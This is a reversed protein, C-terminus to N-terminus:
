GSSRNLKSFKLLTPGTGTLGAFRFELKEAIRISAFNDRSISLMVKRPSAIFQHRSLTEALMLRAIQHGYGHRWLNRAVFYSFGDCEIRGGGLPHRDESDEFVYVPGLGSTQPPQLYFMGQPRGDAFLGHAVEPEDIMHLLAPWDSANIVRM